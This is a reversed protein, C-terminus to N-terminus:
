GYGCFEVRQWSNVIPALQDNLKDEVEQYSDGTATLVAVIRRFFVHNFSYPLQSVGYYCCDFNGTSCGGAGGASIDDNSLSDTTVKQGGAYLVWRVRGAVYTSGCYQDNVFIDPLPETVLKPIPINQGIYRVDAGPYTDCDRRWYCNIVPHCLKTWSERYTQSILVWTGAWPYVTEPTCDCTVPDFTENSNCPSGCSYALGKNPGSLCRCKPTCDDMNAPLIAM